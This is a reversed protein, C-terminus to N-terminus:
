NEIINYVFQKNRCRNNIYRYCIAALISVLVVLSAAIAGIAVVGSGNEDVESNKATTCNGEVDVPQSNNGCRSIAYIQVIM